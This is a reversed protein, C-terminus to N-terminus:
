LRRNVEARVAAYDYGAATIRRQREPGNGWQGAIVQTALASVSLRVPRSGGGGVKANVAAQVASPSYGAAQLRRGREPNNGWHGALVEDALQENSKRAPAPKSSLQRNVEAQVASANYGAGTLRRRRDDGSGWSGALVQKAIQDISLLKPAPPKAAGAGLIANVKSQVAAADYGSAALKRKRDDGSGWSGAIVERAVTVLSKGGSTATNPTSAGASNYGWPKTDNEYKKGHRISIHGHGYHGNIGNYKQARFGTSRLYIVGDQIFYETRDDGLVVQRYKVKDMGDKDVDIARVVGTVVPDPNHDSLRAAHSADGIWGDASKDRNPHAVNIENRLVVLCPALYAM